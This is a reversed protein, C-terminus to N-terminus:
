WRLLGAWSEITNPSKTGYRIDEKSMKDNQLIVKLLKRSLMYKKGFRVHRFINRDEQKISWKALCLIRLLFYNERLIKKLMTGNNEKNWHQQQSMLHRSSEKGRNQFKKKERELLKSFRKEWLKSIGINHAKTYTKKLIWKQWTWPLRIWFNM